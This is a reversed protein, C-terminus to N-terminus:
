GKVRYVLQNTAGESLLLGKDVIAKLDRQLSRRIPVEKELQLLAPRVRFPPKSLSHLVRAPM